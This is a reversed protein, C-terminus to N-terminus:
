RSQFIATNPSKRNALATPMPKRSSFASSIVSIPTPIASMRTVRNIRLLPKRQPAGGVIPPPGGEVPFETMLIVLFRTKVVDDEIHAEELQVFRAAHQDFEDLASATKNQRDSSQEDVPRHGMMGPGLGDTGTEMQRGLRNKPLMGKVANEVVRTPHKELM